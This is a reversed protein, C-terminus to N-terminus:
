KLNNGESDMTNRRAAEDMLIRRWGQTWGSGLGEEKIDELMWSRELSAVHGITKGMRTNERVFDTEFV